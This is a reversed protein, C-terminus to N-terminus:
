AGHAIRHHLACPVFVGRPRVELRQYRDHDLVLASGDVQGGREAHYITAQAPSEAIVTPLLTGATRAHSCSNHGLLCWCSPIMSFVLVHMVPLRGQLWLFSLADVIASMEATNNSHVRAGAFALHAETTIVPGLIM